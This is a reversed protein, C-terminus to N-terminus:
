IVLTNITLFGLLFLITNVREINGWGCILVVTKILLGNLRFVTRLLLPHVIVNLKHKKETKFVHIILFVNIYKSCYFVKQSKANSVAHIIQCSCTYEALAFATVIVMCNYQYM